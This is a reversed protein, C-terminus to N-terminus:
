EHQNSQNGEPKNSRIFRLGTWVTMWSCGFIVMSIFVVIVTMRNGEDLIWLLGLYVLCGLMAAGGVLTVVGITKALAWVCWELRINPHARRKAAQKIRVVPKKSTLKRSNKTM